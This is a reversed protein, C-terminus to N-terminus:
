DVLVGSVNLATWDNTWLPVAPSPDFAGVFSTFGFCWLATRRIGTVATPLAPPPFGIASIRPNLGGVVGQDEGALTATTVFTDIVTLSPDANGLTADSLAISDLTAETGSYAWAPGTANAIFGNSIDGIFGNRMTIRGNADINPTYGTAGTPGVTTLNTFSYCQAPCLNGALDTNISPADDGDFECTEDGGTVGVGTFAQVAFAFQVSGTWGQDGDFSDDGVYSAILNSGNVTGGFWEFGDDFNLYVEVFEICTAFGVGGLTLGNIENATGIEDGGHRISVFTMIGSNDSACSGGYLTDPGAPLGEINTTGPINVGDNINCPAEGLIIVGGWLETNDSDLDGEVSVTNNAIPGAATIGLPAGAPDADYFADGATWKVLFGGSSDPIGDSNNDVAATTFIIPSNPTGQADIQGTQTVILSGPADGFAGGAASRPQGRVITGPTITLVAGDKVFIPGELVIEGGWVTDTTIDANVSTQASLVSATALFTATALLKKM